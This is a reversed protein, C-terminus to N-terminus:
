LNRIRCRFYMSVCYLANGIVLAAAVGQAAYMQAGVISLAVISIFQIFKPIIQLNPKERMLTILSLTQGAEFLGGALICMAILSSIGEYDRRVVLHLIPDIVGLFVLVGAVMAVSVILCSIRILDMERRDLAFSQTGRSSFLSPILVLRLAACLQALPAFGLQFAIGYAAVTATDTILGISWKDAVSQLSAPLLWILFPWIYREIEGNWKGADTSVVSAAPWGAPPFCMYLAAALLGGMMQGAIAAGLVGIDTFKWLALGLLLRILPLAVQQFAMLRRQRTSIAIAQLIVLHVGSGAIAISLLVVCALQREGFNFLLVYMIASLALAIAGLQAQIRRIGAMLAGSTGEGCAIAAYRIVAQATVSPLSEVFAAYSLTLIFIGYDVASMVSAYILMSILACIAGLMQGAFVIVSELQIEKKVPFVPWDFASTFDGKRWFPSVNEGDQSLRVPRLRM